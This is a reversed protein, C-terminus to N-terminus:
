RRLFCVTNGIKILYICPSRWAFLDGIAGKQTFWPDKQMVSGVNQEWFCAHDCCLMLRHIQWEKSIIQGQEYIYVSIYLGTLSNCFMYSNWICNFGVRHVGWWQPCKLSPVGGTSVGSSHVGWWQPCKLSSKVKTRFISLSIFVHSATVFCPPIGYLM